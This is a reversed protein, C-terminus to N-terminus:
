DVGRSMLAFKVGKGARAKTKIEPSCYVRAFGVTIMVVSFMDAGTVNM